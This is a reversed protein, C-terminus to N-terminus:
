LILTLLFQTYPFPLSLIHISSFVIIRVLSGIIYLYLSQPFLFVSPFCFFVSPFIKSAEGRVKQIKQRSQPNKHQSVDAQNEKKKNWECRLRLCSIVRRSSIFIHLVPQSAANMYIMSGSWAPLCACCACVFLVFPRVSPAFSVLKREKKEEKKGKEEEEKREFHCCVYKKRSIHVIPSRSSISSSNNYM